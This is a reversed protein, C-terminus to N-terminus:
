VERDLLKEFLRAASAPNGAGEPRIRFPLLAM